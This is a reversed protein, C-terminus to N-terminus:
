TDEQSNATASLARYAAEMRLELQGDYGAYVDLRERYLTELLAPVRVDTLFLAWSMTTTWPWSHNDLVFLDWMQASMRTAAAAAAIANSISSSQYNRGTLQGSWTFSKRASKPEYICSVTAFMEPLKTPIPAAVHFSYARWWNITWASSTIGSGALWRRDGSNIVVQELRGNGYDELFRQLNIGCWLKNLRNRQLASVYCVPLRKM